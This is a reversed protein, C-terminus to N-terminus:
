AAGDEEHESLERPLRVEDRRDRSRLESLRSKSWESLGANDAFYSLRRLADDEQETLGPETLGDTQPAEM